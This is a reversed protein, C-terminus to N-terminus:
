QMCFLKGDQFYGGKTVLLIANTNNRTAENTVCKRKISYKVLFLEVIGHM